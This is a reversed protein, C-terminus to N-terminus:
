LSPRWSDGGFWGQPDKTSGQEVKTCLSRTGQPSEHGKVWRCEAKAPSLQGWARQDRVQPNQSYPGQQTEYWPGETGGTRTSAAGLIVKLSAPKTLLLHAPLTTHKATSFPINQSREGQLSDRGALTKCSMLPLRFRRAPTHPVLLPRHSDTWLSRVRLPLVLHSFPLRLHVLSPTISLFSKRKM